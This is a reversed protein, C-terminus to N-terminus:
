KPLLLICFHKIRTEILGMNWRAMISRGSERLIGMETTERRREGGVWFGFGFGFRSEEERKKRELFEVEVKKERRLIKVVM